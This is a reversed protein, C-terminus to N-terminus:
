NYKAAYMLVSRNAEDVAKRAENFNFRRRKKHLNWSGEWSNRAYLAYHESANDEPVPDASKSRGQENDTM